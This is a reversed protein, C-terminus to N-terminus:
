RLIYDLIVGGEALTRRPGAAPGEGSSSLSPPTAPPRALTTWVRGQRLYLCKWFHKTHLKTRRTKGTRGSVNTMRAETSTRVLRRGSLEGPHSLSRRRHLSPVTSLPPALRETGIRLSLAAPRQRPSTPAQSSPPAPDRQPLGSGGGGGWRAQPWGHPGRQSAERGRERNSGGGGARKGLGATCGLHFTLNELGRDDTM